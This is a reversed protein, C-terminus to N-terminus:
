LYMHNKRIYFRTNVCVISCNFFFFNKSTIIIRRSFYTSSLIKPIFLFFHSLKARIAVDTNVICVVAISFINAMNQTQTLFNQLIIRIHGILVHSDPFDATVFRDSMCAVSSKIYVNRQLIIELELLCSFNEDSLLWM